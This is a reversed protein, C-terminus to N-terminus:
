LVIGVVTCVFAAVFDIVILEIVLRRQRTLLDHDASPSRRAERLYAWLCVGGIGVSLPGAAVLTFLVILRFIWIDRFLATLILSGVGAVLPVVVCCMAAHYLGRRAQATPNARYDLIPLNEAM